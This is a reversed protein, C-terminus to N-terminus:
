DAKELLQVFDKDQGVLQVIDAKIAQKAGTPGSMYLWLDLTGPEQVIVHKIFACCLRNLAVLKGIHISQDFDASSIKFGYGDSLSKIKSTNAFFSSFGAILWDRQEKTLATLDCAIPLDTM